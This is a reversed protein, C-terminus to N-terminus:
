YQASQGAVRRRYIRCDAEINRKELWERVALMRIKIPIKKDTKVNYRINQNDRLIFTAEDANM